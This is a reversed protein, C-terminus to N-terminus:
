NNDARPITKANKVELRKRKHFAALKDALTLEHTHKVEKPQDKFSDPDLTKRVRLRLYPDKSKIADDYLKQSLASAKVMRASALRGKFSKNKALYKYVARESLGVLAACSEISHGM